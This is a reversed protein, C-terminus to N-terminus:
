KEPPYVAIAVVLILLVALHIILATNSMALNSM